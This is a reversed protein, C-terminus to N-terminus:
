KKFRHSSNLTANKYLKAKLKKADHLLGSFPAMNGEKIQENCHKILLDLSASLAIIESDNFTVKYSYTTM